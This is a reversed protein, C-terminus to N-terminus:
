LIKKAKEWKVMMVAGIAFCIAAACAIWGVFPIAALVKLVVYVGMSVLFVKWSGWKERWHIEAYRAITVSAIAKAFVLTFIWGVLVLLGIPIGIVTICLAIAIVPACIFYLLGTLFSQGPKDSLRKAADRFFTKTILILLGVILATTLLTYLAFGGLFAAALGAAEKKHARVAPKLSPDLTVTGRVKGEITEAGKEEWHRLNGNVRANPGFTLEKAVIRAHNFIPGNVHVRNANIVVNEDVSGNLVVTEANVTLNGNIVGDIIVSSGNAIVDGFIDAGRRLHIEAGFALIDGGVSSGIGIHNGAVRIDDGVQASIEITQGAAQVSKRIGSTISIANGVALLDSRVEETISIQNGAIYLDDRVRLVATDDL